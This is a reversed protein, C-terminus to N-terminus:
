HSNNDTKDHMVYKLDHQTKHWKKKNEAKFPVCEHKFRYQVTLHVIDRASHNM